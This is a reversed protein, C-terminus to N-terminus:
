IVPLGQTLSVYVASDGFGVIDAAGDHNVDALHRPYIDQSLWGGADAGRGFAALELSSTSFSGDIQGLALHIGANGFGVIDARGDRNVDALERHFTNDSSWGGAQAQAGFEALKLAAAGFSGDAQALAVYVGANGFGVVDARGDGNVDAMHRPFADQSSWGGAQAQTGFEALKLASPAFTGDANATSVYVGANGFGVIDARGDGNVDALERHFTNDSSWGGAQAQAGFEALKLAAAGFSGDAQALAVYVGANGFGVVDARGDGNM